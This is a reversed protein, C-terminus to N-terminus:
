AKDVFHLAFAHGEYTTPVLIVSTKVTGGKKKKWVVTIKSGAMRDMARSYTKVLTAQSKKDVLLDLFHKGTKEIEKISKYGLMNGFKENIAVHHDDLYLYVGQDSCEFVPELEKCLKSFVQEYHKSADM